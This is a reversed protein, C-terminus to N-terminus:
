PQKDLDATLDRIDKRAQLRAVERTMADTKADRLTTGAERGADFVSAMDATGADNGFKLSVPAGTEDFEAAVERSGFIRGRGIAMRYLGSLQPFAVTKSASFALPDPAKPTAGLPCSDISIAVPVQKRYYLASEPMEVKAVPPPPAPKDDDNDKDKDKDKLPLACLMEIAPKPKPAAPDPKPADPDPKLAAVRGAIAPSPLYVGQNLASLALPDAKWSVVAGKYGPLKERDAPALETFWQKYDLPEVKVAGDVSPNISVPDSSLTLVDDLGALEDRKLKLLDADAATLSSQAQRQELTAVIGAAADRQDVLRKIDERCATKLVVQPVPRDRGVAAPTFMGSTAVFAATKLVSVILPGAQGEVTSNISKITGDPNYKIETNRKSLFGASADLQYLQSYDPASKAVINASTEVLVGKNGTDPCRVLRQSFGASAKAKPLYYPFIPKNSKSPVPPDDAAVAPQALSSLVLGGSALAFILKKM